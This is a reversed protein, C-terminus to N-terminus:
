PSFIDLEDDKEQDRGKKENEQLPNADIVDIEGNEM